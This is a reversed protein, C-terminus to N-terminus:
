FLTIEWFLLFGFKIFKSSEDWTNFFRLKCDGFFLVDIYLSLWGYLSWFEYDWWEFEFRLWDFVSLALRLRLIKFFWSIIKTSYVIQFGFNPNTFYSNL